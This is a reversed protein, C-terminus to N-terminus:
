IDGTQLGRTKCLDMLDREQFDTPLNGVFLKCDEKASSQSYGDQKQRQDTGNNKGFRDFLKPQQDSDTRRVPFNGNQSGYSNNYGNNM